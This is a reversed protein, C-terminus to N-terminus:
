VQWLDDQRQGGLLQQGPDSIAAGHAELVAVSGSVLGSVARARAASRARELQRGQLGQLAVKAPVRARGWGEKRVVSRVRQVVQHSSDKRIVCLPAHMGVWPRHRRDRGAGGWGMGDWGKRPEGQTGRKRCVIAQLWEGM